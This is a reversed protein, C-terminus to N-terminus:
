YKVTVLNRISKVTQKKKNRTALDGPKKIWKIAVNRRIKALWHVKHSIIFTDLVTCYQQYGKFVVWSSEHVRGSPFDVVSIRLPRCVTPNKYTMLIIIVKNGKKIWKPISRSRTRRQQKKKKKFWRIVKIQVDISYFSVSNKLLYVNKDTSQKARITTPLSIRRNKHVYQTRPCTVM